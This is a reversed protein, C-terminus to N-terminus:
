KEVIIFVDEDPKSMYFQERAYKELNELGSRLEEIKRNDSAIKEIYYERQAKMSALRKKNKRHAMMNNEDFFMIWVVFILSIIFYKNKLLRVTKKETRINEMKDVM